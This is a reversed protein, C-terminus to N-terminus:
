VAEPHAKPTNKAVPMQRAYESQADYARMLAQPVSVALVAERLQEFSQKPLAEGAVAHTQALFQASPHNFLLLEEYLREEAERRNIMKFLPVNENGNLSVRRSLHKDVAKLHQDRVAISSIGALETVDDGCTESLVRLAYRIRQQDTIELAGQNAAMKDPNIPFTYDSYNIEYEIFFLGDPGLFEASTSDETSM